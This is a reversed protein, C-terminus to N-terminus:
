YNCMKIGLLTTCPIGAICCDIKCNFCIWLPNKKQVIIIFKTRIRHMHKYSNCILKIYINTPSPKIDNSTFIWERHVPSALQIYLM